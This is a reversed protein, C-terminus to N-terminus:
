DQQATTEFAEGIIEELFKAVPGRRLEEWYIQNWYNRLCSRCSTDEECQPCQAIILSRRVVAELNDAISRVHGAGGPVNDFLVVEHSYNDDPILTERIPFPRVVGDLDRREIQLAL